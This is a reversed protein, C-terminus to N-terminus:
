QSRRERDDSRHHPFRSGSKGAGCTRGAIQRCIAPPLRDLRYELSRSGNGSFSRPSSGGRQCLLHTPVKERGGFRHDPRVWQLSMADFDSEPCAGAMTDFIQLVDVGAEIQLNLSEILADTIKSLLQDFCQRDQYFLNKIRSLDNFSGGEVMYTALTWPSGGFGILAKKNEIETRVLRLAEAVYNLKESIGSPNLKAVDSRGDIRYEM